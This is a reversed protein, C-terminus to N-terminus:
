FKYFNFADGLKERPLGSKRPVIYYIHYYLRLKSHGVKYKKM